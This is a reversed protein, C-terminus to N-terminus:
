SKSCLHTFQTRYARCATHGVTALDLAGNQGTCAAEQMAPVICGWPTKHLEMVPCTCAGGQSVKVVNRREALIAEGELVPM